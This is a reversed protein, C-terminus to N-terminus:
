YTFKLELGFYPDQNLLGLFVGTTRDLNEPRINLFNNAFFTFRVGKGLNKSMNFHANYYVFKPERFYQGRQETRSMVDYISNDRENEPIEFYELNEDLYGVARDTSPFSRIYNYLFVEGRLAMILGLKSIHHNITFMGKANGSQSQTGGYVAFWFPDGLQYNTRQQYQLADTFFYSDYYTMMFQFSSNISEIKETSFLFEFGYSKDNSRNLISRQAVAYRRSESTPQYIPKQNERLETIEYVPIDLPVWNINVSFGNNSNNLFATAGLDFIGKKYKLGIERQRTSMPRLQSADNPRQYTYVLFLSEAERGNFYNILPIDQFQPGPFLHILGPAKFSLGFGGYILLDESVKYSANIRPSYSWNGVQNDLRLGATFKYARSFLNGSIRDEVYLGFQEMFPNTERFSLPRENGFQSISGSTRLPRTPDFIRGAGFNGDFRYSAGYSINHSTKNNGLVKEFDIRSSLNLPRGEIARTTLYSSPHYTGENIGLGLFGTVPLVGPNVFQETFAYDYSGNYSFNVKFNDFVLSKLNFFTRNSITQGRREYYVIRESAFDPDIRFDDLTTNYRLDLTNKILKNKGIFASWMLGGGIRKFSKVEDRLNPRSYLYDINAHISHNDSLQFGKSVQFNQDARAQRISVNIPSKGASTEIIVAGNSLDGYKASAVGQIVEISEINGVAIQRLDFGGAPNEGGEFSSNRFGTGGGLSSFNGTQTPNRGQMNANNNLQNDNMVISIGFSNNLSSQGSNASRFNITQGSQLDPNQIGQGPILQLLEALSNAQSQDIVEKGLKFASVSVNDDDRKATVVVESMYNDNDQLVVDKQVVMQSPNLELEYRETKKGVLRVTLTITRAVNSNIKIEYRGNDDTLAYVNQGAMVTVYPLTEKSGADTVKGKIIYQQSFASSINLLTLILAIQLLKIMPHRKM